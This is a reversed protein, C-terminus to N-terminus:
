ALAMSKLAENRTMQNSAKTAQDMNTMTRLYAADIDSQAANKMDKDKLEYGQTRTIANRHIVLDKVRVGVRMKYQETPGAFDVIADNEKSRRQFEAKADDTSMGLPPCNKPKKAWECFAVEHMMEYVGDKIWAEEAKITAIYQLINFQERKKGSSKMKIRQHEYNHLLKAAKREDAM